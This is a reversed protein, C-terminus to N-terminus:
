RRKAPAETLWWKVPAPGDPITDDDDDDIAIVPAPTPPHRLRENLTAIKGELTERGQEARRLAKELAKVRSKAEATEAKADRIEQRLAGIREDPEPRPRPQSLEAARQALHSERERRLTNEAEARALDAHGLKTRLDRITAQAETLHREALQRANTEATIVSELQHLRATQPPNQAAARQAETATDRRVYTVKVDGDQVFRRKHMGGSRDGLRDGLRDSLRMTGGPEARDPEPRPRAPGDLGLARRMQAETDELASPGSPVAGTLSRELEAELEALSDKDNQSL